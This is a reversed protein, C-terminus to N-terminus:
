LVTINLKTLKLIHDPKQHMLHFLFIDKISVFVNEAQNQLESLRSDLM